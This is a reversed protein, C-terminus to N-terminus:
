KLADAPILLDFDKHFIDEMLELNTWEENLSKQAIYDEILPLVTPFIERFGEKTHKEKLEKLFFM